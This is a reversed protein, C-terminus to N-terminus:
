PLTTFVSPELAYGYAATQQGRNIGAPATVLRRMSGNIPITVNSMAVVESGCTEVLRINFTIDRNTYSYTGVMTLASKAKQKPLQMPDRTLLLEGTPPDMLIAKGKRIEQIRYGSQVLWYAVEEQMQRALANSYELDNLDVPTTMIVTVNNPVGAEYGFRQAIQRDMERGMAAAAQTLESAVAVSPICFLTLILALTKM